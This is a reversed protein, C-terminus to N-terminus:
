HGKKNYISTADIYNILTIIVIIIIKLYLYGLGFIFNIKFLLM